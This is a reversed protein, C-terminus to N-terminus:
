KGRTKDTLGGAMGRAVKSPIPGKASQKPPDIKPATCKLPGSTVAQDSLPKDTRTEDRPLKLWPCGKAAMRKRAYENSKKRDRCDVQLHPAIRKIRRILRKVEAPKDLTAIPM